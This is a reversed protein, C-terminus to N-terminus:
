VKACPIAKATVSPLSSYPSVSTKLFVGHRGGEAQETNQAAPVPAPNFPATQPCVGGGALSPKPTRPPPADKNGAIQRGRRVGGTPKASLGRESPALIGGCPTKQGNGGESLPSAGFPCPPTSRPRRPVSVEVRGAKWVTNQCSKCSQAPYISLFTQRPVSVRGGAKRVM